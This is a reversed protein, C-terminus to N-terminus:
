DKFQKNMKNKCYRCTGKFFQYTEEISHGEVEDPIRDKFDFFNMDFVRGCQKCLFHAHPTTDADFCSNHEQITLMQAAGGDVLLRLTNYVTTKSLTPMSPSLSSFIDDVTPHNRHEILYNMVALRQVSPRIDAKDLIKRATTNTIM